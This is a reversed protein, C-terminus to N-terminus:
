LKEINTSQSSTDPEEHITTLVNINQPSIGILVSQGGPVKVLILHHRPGFSRKSLVEIPTQSAPKSFAHGWRKLGYICAFFLALVLTLSGALRLLQLTFDMLDNGDM